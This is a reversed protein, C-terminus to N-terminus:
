FYSLVQVHIAHIVKQDPHALAAKENYTNVLLGAHSLQHSM